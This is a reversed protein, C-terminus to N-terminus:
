MQTEDRLAESLNCKLIKRGGIYYAAAVSCFIMMFFAAVPVVPAEAFFEAPNLYSATIMFWLFVAAAPLTILVPRGAIVIAEVVFMKRMEGPTMGVSMYRAFERKRQRLFGLTNSFVNAIGILALLVCFGGLIMMYGKRMEEDDTKEQIRNETEVIYNGGLIEKVSSELADLEELGAQKEGLIRIYVDAEAQGTREQTEEWLSVPIFQVLSYNDYEERLVPTEQTYGLVPIGSLIEEKKEEDLFPIYEKYRFNSNVSDWIRNLVVSGQGPELGIRRCYAAFSEDDMVVLPAKVLYTGSDTNAENGALTELGGLAKVEGSISDVPIEAETEAKQYVVCDRVGPIAKLEGTESFDGIETDKVEAMIDWSDQYREFYTHRTSIGSLTFFCLMITFGLFSLTLSLTSTRLAKRQAKLANGALEGEVGFLFSLIRSRKKRYLIIEDSGKAAQLPSLRSLRFAPIWASIFVTVATSLFTVAFVLPHYQFVAEHRGAIDEGIRNIGQLIGASLLIGLVNGLLVPLICLASAEQILCTRIQGPTAGISSLVGLQRVRANMSVAFSNHIVLILAASMLILVALYMPLLLPPSGDQPDYILYRSLLLEHYSAAEEDLGLLETLAPLDRYITRPNFFWIDVATCKGETMKENIEAKKVNASTRIKELDEEELCGSIRGEWSGEELRIQEIDYTWFNYALCCLLSLFLASIFAAAMISVGSAKNRKIYNVSYEKWMFIQLGGTDSVAPEEGKRM